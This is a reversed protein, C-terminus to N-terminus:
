SAKPMSCILCPCTAHRVVKEAVSSKILSEVFGQQDHGMVIYDADNTKAVELIADAPDGSRIFTKIAKVSSQKTFAEAQAVVSESFATALRTSMAARVSEEGVSTGMPSQAYNGYFGTYTDTPKSLVGEMVAAQLVDDKMLKPEVVCILGLNSDYNDALACAIELAANSAPTGDVAVLVRNTM